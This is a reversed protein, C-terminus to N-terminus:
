DSISKPQWTPDSNRQLYGVIMGVPMCAYSVPNIINLEIIQINPELHYHLYSTIYPTLSGFTYLSGVSIMILTAGILSRVAKPTLLSM